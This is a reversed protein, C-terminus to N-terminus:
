QGPRGWAQLSASAARATLSRLVTPAFRTTSMQSRLGVWWRQSGRVDWSDSPWDNNDSRGNFRKWKGGLGAAWAETDSM